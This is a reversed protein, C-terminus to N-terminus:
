SREVVGAIRRKCAVIYHLCAFLAVWHCIFVKIEIRFSWVIHRFGNRRKDVLVNHRGHEVSKCDQAHRLQKREFSM